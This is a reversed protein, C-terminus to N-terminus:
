EGGGDESGPWGTISLEGDTGTATAVVHTTAGDQAVSCVIRVGPQAPYAAQSGCDVESYGQETLQSVLRSTAIVGEKLRADFSVAGNTEALKVQVQGPVGDFWGTCSLSVPAKGKWDPCDLFDLKLGLGAVQKALSAAVPRELADMEGTPVVATPTPGGLTPTDSRVPGASAPADSGCGGLCVVLVAAVAGATLHRLTRM